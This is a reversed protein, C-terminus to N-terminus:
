VLSVQQSLLRCPALSPSTLKAWFSASSTVQTKVTLCLLLATPEKNILPIM